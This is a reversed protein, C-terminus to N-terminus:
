GMNNLFTTIEKPVQSSDMRISVYEGLLRKWHPPTAASNRRFCGVIKAVIGGGNANPSVEEKTASIKFIDKLAKAVLEPPYFDEIDNKSLALAHDPRILNDGVVGQIQQNGNGDVM